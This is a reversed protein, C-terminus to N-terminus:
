RKGAKVMGVTTAKAILGPLVMTLDRRMGAFQASLADFSRKLDAANSVSAEYQTNEPVSLVRERPTLWAPVIDTGRPGSTGYAAYMPVVGGSALGLDGAGPASGDPLEGAGPGFPLLSPLPSSIGGGNGVDGDTPSGGGGHGGLLGGLIGSLIGGGAASGGSGSGSAIGLATALWSGFEQELPKLFGQLINALMDAFIKILDAEFLQFVAKAADAFSHTQALANAFTDEWGSQMDQNLQQWSKFLPDNLLRIQTMKAQATAQIAEYHATWNLDDDKLKLTEDDAWKQVAAIKKETDTLYMGSLTDYYDSWLQTTADISAVTDHMQQLSDVHRAGGLKDIWTMMNTNKADEVAQVQKLTESYDKHAAILAQVQAETLGYVEKLTNASVGANLYYEVAAVVEGDLSSLTDHWSGGASMLDSYAALWKEHAAQATKLSAVYKDVVVVNEGIHAAAEKASLGVAIDDAVQRQEAATLGVAIAVRNEFAKNAALQADTLDKLGDLMPKAAGAANSWIPAMKAAAAEYQTQASIANLHEIAVQKVAVALLQWVPAGYQDFFSATDAAYDVVSRDSDRTANTVADLNANIAHLGAQVVPDQTIMKGLNAQFEEWQNSLQQVQGAYTGIQIQAQGGFRENLAEFIYSAGEAQVRTQDLIVGYRALGTAHGELARSILTVASELDIRLGASLDLAAKTAQGMTDTTVGALQIFRAEMDIAATKSAVSTDAIHEALAQFAPLSGTVVQGSATVAASLRAEASELAAAAVVCNEMFEVARGVGDAAFDGIRTFAGELTTGLLTGKVITSLMSNAVNDLVGQVSAMSREISTTNAEINYIMSAITTM